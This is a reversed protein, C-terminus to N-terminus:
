TRGHVRHARELAEARLQRGDDSLVTGAAGIVVLAGALLHRWSLPEAVLWWALAGAIFPQALRMIPPINAPVYRLPWTMIFHGLLGPGLAVAAALALDTTTARTPDMGALAVFASVLLAAVFITGLLFAMVPLHDRGAKSLLFFIAFFVVNALAMTMGIASGTPATSATVALGAGGAIAVAAWGWFRSGPREAFLWRAGVATVIPALANMLSVDVVTTVRVATFFLLQHIGFAVGAWLSFRWQRWTPWAVGLRRQVGVVVALGAVGIWLRWFSFQPGSLTSTQLLVPGTSYLM